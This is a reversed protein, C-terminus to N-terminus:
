NSGSRLKQAISNIQQNERFCNKQTYKPNLILDGLDLKLNKLPDLVDRGKNRVRIRSDERKISKCDSLVETKSLDTENFLSDDERFSKSRLNSIM